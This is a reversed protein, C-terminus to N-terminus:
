LVLMKEDPVQAVFPIKDPYEQRAKELMDEIAEGKDVVKGEVIIVYKNQLGTKDLNLYAEFNKTM